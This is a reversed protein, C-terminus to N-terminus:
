PNQVGHPRPLQVPKLLITGAVADLEMLQPSFSVSDNVDYSRFLPQGLGHPASAKPMPVVSTPYTRAM